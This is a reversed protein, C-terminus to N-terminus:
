LLYHSPPKRSSTIGVSFELFFFFLFLLKGSPLPLLFANWWLVAHAFGHSPLRAAINLSSASNFTFHSLSSALDASLPSIWTVVRLQKAPDQLCHYTLCYTLFWIALNATLLIVRAVFYFTARLTLGSATSWNSPLLWYTLNLFLAQGRNTPLPFLFGLFIKSIFNIDSQAQGLEPLLRPLCRPYPGPTWSPQHTPVPVM